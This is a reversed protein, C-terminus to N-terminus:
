ATVDSSKFYIIARQWQTIIEFYLTTWRTSFKDCAEVWKAAAVSSHLIRFLLWFMSFMFSFFIVDHMDSTDSTKEPKLHPPHSSYIVFM